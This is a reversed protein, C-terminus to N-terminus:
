PAVVPARAASTTVNHDIMRALATELKGELFLGNFFVSDADVLRAIDSRAASYLHPDVGAGMLTGPEVRDGGIAEAVDGTVGTTAVVTIPTEAHATPAFLVLAFAVTAAVRKM